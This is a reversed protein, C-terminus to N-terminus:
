LSKKVMELFKEISMSGMDGRKRKRVSVSKDEMERRGVVLLYPIKDLEGRRIKYGVTEDGYDLEARISNEKLINYVSEAYELYKHSVPIVRVQVPALWLPFDGAYNELLIGFFREISGLLARHIMVVREYEGKENVFKIDFREPLNFDVQITSCQWERGISDILKVDIKPGYFAAEGPMIVYKYGKKKLAKELAGQAHEWIEDSGMYEEKRNVDWTSLEVKFEDFGFKSLIEEMLDLVGVIEDELQDRRCFIHADDQTFGRIRLLGHLTGSREYRYVTGLEFYRIPLERYSRVRSKFVLIHFPCNMPKVVHPLGNKEFLYMLDRYYRIHGSTEWLKTYAIHPSVVLNYGRKLHLNKLYDEIIMRVLAGKPHWIALGPGIVDSPMSFLDLKPGLVRHDRKRVEELWALYDDLMKKKPFSIGYIRQLVPNREDGKWYSSSVSTLKFYKVYGTSPLHPGRCLDVFEGQKYISVIDDDMGELLEVKYPEDLERFIKIADVRSIEERVITLDEDIIKRMKEEIRILDDSTFSYGHTDFEYYFGREIAPGIALKVDPFLRKVAQALIHSTTHWYVSKGEESNFDLIKIVDYKESIIASLDVLEDDIKAVFGRYEPVYDLIRKGVEGEVVRGNPYVIKVVKSM